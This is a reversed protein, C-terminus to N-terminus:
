PQENCLERIAQEAESATVPQGSIEYLAAGLAEWSRNYIETITVSGPYSRTLQITQIDAVPQEAAQQELKQLRTKHNTM